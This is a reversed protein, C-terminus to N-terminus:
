SKIEFNFYGLILNNKYKKNHLILKKPNFLFDTKKTDHFGYLASIIIERNNEIAIITNIIKLNNIDIIKTTETIYDSIYVALGDNQNINSNNYYITHGTINFSEPQVLKRTENCVIICPKIGLNKIFVLLNNFNANLGRINVNLIVKKELAMCKNLEGFDDFNSDRNIINNPIDAIM